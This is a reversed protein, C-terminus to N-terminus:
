KGKPKKVKTKPSFLFRGLLFNLFRLTEHLFPAIRLRSEPHLMFMVSSRRLFSPFHRYWMIICFTFLGSIGFRLSAVRCGVDFSQFSSIVSVHRLFPPAHRFWLIVSFFRLANCELRSRTFVTFAVHHTSLISLSFPPSLISGCISAYMLLVVLFM